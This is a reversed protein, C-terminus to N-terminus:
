NRKIYEDIILSYISYQRHNWGSKDFDPFSTDCDYDGSIRSLIVRDAMPLLGEYIGQGGIGYIRTSYYAAFNLACIINPAYIINTHLADGFDIHLSKSVVINTRNPLANKGLSEWTKRGMIVAGGITEQKFFNLDEPNHWPIENNKGIGMQSDVAGILTLM